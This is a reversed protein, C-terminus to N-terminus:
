GEAITSKQPDVFRLGVVLPNTNLSKGKQHYKGNKRLTYCIWSEDHLSHLNEFILNHNNDKKIDDISIYITKGGNNVQNVTGAKPKGYKMITVGMGKEPPPCKTHCLLKNFFSIISMM